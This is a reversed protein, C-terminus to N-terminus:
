GVQQNFAWKLRTAQPVHEVLGKAHGDDTYTFHPSHSEMYKYFEVTHVYILADVSFM